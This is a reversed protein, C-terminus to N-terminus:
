SNYHNEVFDKIEKKIIEVNSAAINFRSLEPSTLTNFPLKTQVLFEKLHNILKDYDKRDHYGMQKMIGDLYIFLKNEHKKVLDELERKTFDIPKARVESLFSFEPFGDKVFSCLLSFVRMKQFSELHEELTICGKISLNQDCFHSWAHISDNSGQNEIILSYLDLEKKENKNMYEIMSIKIFENFFSQAEQYFAIEEQDTLSDLERGAKKALKKGIHVIVREDYHLENPNIPQLVSGSM